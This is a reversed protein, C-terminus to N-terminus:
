YLWGGGTGIMLALPHVIKKWNGDNNFINKMPNNM